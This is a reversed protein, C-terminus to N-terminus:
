VKLVKVINILKVFKAHELKDLPKTLGNAPM